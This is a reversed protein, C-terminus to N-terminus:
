SLIESWIRRREEAQAALTHHALVDEHANRGLEGRRAPDEILACLADFWHEPTNTVLVGTEGDRVVARYPQVDSLVPAFGCIGYDLYKIYSKHSNFGNDVLPAVAIDCHCSRAMWKAFEPYTSEAWKPPKVVRATEPPKKTFGGICTFAVRDGYKEKLRRIPDAVLALDDDHTPTGMYLIRVQGNRYTDRQPDDAPQWLCEDLANPIVLVNRNFAM